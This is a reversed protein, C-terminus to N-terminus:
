KMKAQEYKNIAKELAKKYKVQEPTLTAAIQYSLLIEKYQHYDMPSVTISM